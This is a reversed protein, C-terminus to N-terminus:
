EALRKRIRKPLKNNMNDNLYLKFEKLVDRRGKQYPTMEYKETFLSDIQLLRKEIEEYLKLLYIYAM